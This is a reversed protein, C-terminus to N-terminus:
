YRGVKQWLSITANEDPVATVATLHDPNSAVLFVGHTKNTYIEPVLQGGVGLSIRPRSAM